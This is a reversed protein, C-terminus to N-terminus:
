HRANPLGRLIHTNTGSNVGDGKTLAYLIGVVIAMGVATGISFGILGKNQEWWSSQAKARARLNELTSEYIIKQIASKKREYELEKRRRDREAQIAKYYLIKDVDALLGKYPVADGPNLKKSKGPKFGERKEIPPSVLSGRAEVEKKAQEYTKVPPFKTTACGAAGGILFVEGNSEVKCRCVTHADLQVVNELFRIVLDLGIQFIVDEEQVELM